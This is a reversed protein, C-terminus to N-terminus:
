NALVKRFFFRVLFPLTESRNPMRAILRYLRSPRLYFKLYATRRARNLTKLPIESLNNADDWFSQFTEGVPTDVGLDRAMKEMPTKAYPTARYLGFTDLKSTAAFRITERMESATETPLGIIFNGHASIGLSSAKRIVHKAKELNLNKKMTKQLRPSATEVAIMVRYVGARAMLELMDDTALNAHFGNPIAMPVRLEKALLSEFIDRVRQPDLNFLDDIVLIDRIGHQRVLEEIMGVVYGASRPRYGHGMSVHCWACHYPCGRATEIAMYRPHKSIISIRPLGEYAGIDILDWAPMPWRDLNTEFPREPNERVDDGDRFALGPIGRVDSNSELARILDLFTQEGEGVVAYDVDPNAAVDRGYLTAHIGGCVVKVDRRRAKMRSALDYMVPADLGHASFGVVDPAFEDFARMPADLDRWKPRMDHLRVDANAAGRLVSAIHMLGLPQSREVHREHSAAQVLLVRTM